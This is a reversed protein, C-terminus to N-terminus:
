ATTSLNDNIDSYIPSVGIFNNKSCVHIKQRHVEQYLHVLHFDQDPGGFLNVQQCQISLQSESYKLQLELTVAKKTLVAVKSQHEEHICTISGRLQVVNAESSQLQAKTDLLTSEANDAKDQADGDAQLLKLQLTEVKTELECIKFQAATEAQTAKELSIKAQAEIFADKQRLQSELTNIAETTELTLNLIKEQCQEINSTLTINEIDLM